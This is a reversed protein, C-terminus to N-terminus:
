CDAQVAEAIKLSRAWCFNHFWEQMEAVGQMDNRIQYHILKRYRSLDPVLRATRHLSMISERQCSRRHLIM